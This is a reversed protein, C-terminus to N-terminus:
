FHPGNAQQTDAPRQSSLSTPALNTAEAVPTSGPSAGAAGAQNALAQAIGLENAAIAPLALIVGVTTGLTILIFVDGYAQTAVSFTAVNALLIAAFGFALVAHSRSTQALVGLRQWIQKVVIFGLWFFVALGPLGLDLTLKGLGGEATGRVLGVGGGFYQLGQGGAGLGAGFVGFDWVASFVPVYGLQHFREPIAEFVTLGRDKWAKFQSDSKQILHGDTQKRTEFNEPEVVSLVVSIGVAALIASVMALKAKGKLFWAFLFLFVIAFVVVQVLMKRRGTSLGIYLLFVVVAIVCLSKFVSLKRGNLLIFLFCSVTAVHWAAIEAARYFGANAKSPSGVDYIIQGVGVEGLVLLRVGSADLYIGVFWVLSCAVYFWMWKRIGDSGIRVALQHAFVVAVIPAIYFIGGIVPFFINQFRFYSYLGQFFLLVCFLSFPTSLGNRWGYIVSPSLKVRAAMAGLWGAALAAAVFGVFFVPTGPTLKRLPDQILGVVVCFLLTSRWNFFAAVLACAMLSFGLLMM